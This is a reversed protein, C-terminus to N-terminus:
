MRTIGLGIEDQFEISYGSSASESERQSSSRSQDSYTQSDESEGLLNINNTNLNETGEQNRPPLNDELMANNDDLINEKDVEMGSKSWLDCNQIISDGFSVHYPDDDPFSAASIVREKARGRERDM